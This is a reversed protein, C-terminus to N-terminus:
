RKGKAVGKAKGGRANGNIKVFSNGSGKILGNGSGSVKAVPKAKIRLGPPLRDYSASEWLDARLSIEWVDGRLRYFYGDHYYCDTMGVVVYVGCDADYVLDHGHVCTRRYGHARAHAPPGYGHGPRRHIAVTDCSALLALSAVSVVAILVNRKSEM